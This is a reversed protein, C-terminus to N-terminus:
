VVSRTPPQVGSAQEGRQNELGHTAFNFGNAEHPVYGM